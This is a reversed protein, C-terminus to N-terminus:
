KKDLVKRVAEALEIKSFPKLLYGKTGLAAAKEKDILESFGTCLIIPIDSRIALLKQSLEPGTLDPMTMDTIILDYDDPADQFTRLLEESHTFSRIQYGLSKLVNQQMNAIPAEDDVLLIRETGHPCEKNATPKTDHKANIQPLYVRFTAGKGPESYVSIHGGYNKVIGHVIALGLGTGEGTARTTYYPEFIKDQTQKDMGCGTDSVELRVYIGAPLDLAMLLHDNQEIQCANLGIALVGGSERMSYYANTVLNMVIQHLQTPDALVMGAKTNIDERIEITSPISSRLLKLAEKIILHFFIPTRKQKTQRSFTLIQQVLDKARISSKFIQEQYVRHMSEEPLEELILESYGLIATLINNFDHAIGGALTGIAEMKQAQNLQEELKKQETVDRKLAVYHIIAGAKNLVPTISAEEEFLTGDKKRNILNGRWVKGSTLTNWMQRYFNTDHSGSQLFRPNKGIAEEKSYGTVKEFCPNVYQITGSKDTIVISDAAQEIVTTLKHREEEAKKRETVDLCYEIVQKIEGKAGFVPYGHIDLYRKKGDKDLHVHEFVVARKTRKIEDIPCPHEKGTCPESRNHTLQYCTAERQDKNFGAATNALAITYDNVNILYFPHTLADLSRQLLQHQEKVKQEAEERLRLTEELEAVKEELKMAVIESYKELYDKEDDTTVTQTDPQEHRTIQLTREVKKWFEKPEEPKFIYGSAGLSDALRVDQDAKYTASYFIFPISRLTEHGKIKKLFQFGDMVPMLADSIILDPKHAAAMELGQQGNRAMIPQHGNREVIHKLLTLDDANDDVILIKM